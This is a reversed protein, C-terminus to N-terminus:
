GLPVPTITLTGMATPTITLPGMAMPTITLTGMIMPTVTPLTGIHKRGLPAARWWCGRRACGLDNKGTAPNQDTPVVLRTKPDYHFWGEAPVVPVHRAVPHSARDLNHETSKRTYIACRQLKPVTVKM